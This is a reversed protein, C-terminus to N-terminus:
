VGIVDKREILEVRSLGLFWSGITVLRAGRARKNIKIKRKERTKEKGKVRGKETESGV